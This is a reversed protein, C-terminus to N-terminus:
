SYTYYRAFNDLAKRSPQHPNSSQREVLGQAVSEALERNNTALEAAEPKKKMKKYAIYSDVFAPAAARDAYGSGNFSVLSLCLWETGTTLPKKGM